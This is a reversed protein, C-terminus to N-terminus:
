ELVLHTDEDGITFGPSIAKGTSSEGPKALSNLTPVVFLGPVPAVSFDSGELHWAEASAPGSIEFVVNPERLRASLMWPTGRLLEIGGATEGSVAGLYSVTIM